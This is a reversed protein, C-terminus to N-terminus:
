DLTVGPVLRVEVPSEKAEIVREREESEEAEEIKNKRQPADNREEAVAAEAEAEALVNFM